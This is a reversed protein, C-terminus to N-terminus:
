DGNAFVDETLDPLAVPVDAHRDEHDGGVAVVLRIEGDLHHLRTGRVEHFLRELIEVLPDHLGTALLDGRSHSRAASRLRESGQPRKFSRLQRKKFVPDFKGPDFDAHGVVTHDPPYQPHENFGTRIPGATAIRPLCEGVGILAWFIIAEFYAQGNIYMTALSGLVGIIAGTGIMTGLSISTQGIVRKLELKETAINKKFDKNYKYILYISVVILFPLFLAWTINSINNIM